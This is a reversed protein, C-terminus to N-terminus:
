DRRGNLRDGHVDARHGPHAPYAELRPDALIAQILPVPGGVYTWAFDVHTAVCWSRDPPWWLSPWPGPGALGVAALLSGRFLLYTYWRHREGPLHFRVGGTLTWGAPRPASAGTDGGAGRRTTGCGLGPAEPEGARSALWTWSGPEWLGWGDWFAFVVADRHATFRGLHEVLIRTEEPPLRGPEPPHYLQEAATGATLAEWQMEAHPTRGFRRAVETWRVPRGSRGDTAPHFLRAYAPFGTPIM